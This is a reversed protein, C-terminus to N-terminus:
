EISISITLRMIAYRSKLYVYVVIGFSSHLMTWNSTWNTHLINFDYKEKEKKKVCVCLALECPSGNVHIISRWFSWFAQHDEPFM